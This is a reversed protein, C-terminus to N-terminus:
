QDDREDEQNDYAKKAATVWAGFLVDFAALTAVIQSGYPINWIDIVAAIFTMFPLILLSILKLNDYTKGNKFIM